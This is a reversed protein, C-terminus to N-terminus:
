QCFYDKPNTKTQKLGSYELEFIINLIKAFVVQTYIGRPCYISLREKSHIIQQRPINVIFDTVNANEGIM